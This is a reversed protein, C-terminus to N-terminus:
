RAAAALGARSSPGALPAGDAYRRRPLRSLRAWCALGAALVGISVNQSLTMGAYFAVDDGRVKEIPFRTMAYLVM